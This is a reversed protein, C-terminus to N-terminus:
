GVGWGVVWFAFRVTFSGIIALAILEIANRGTFAVTALNEGTLLGVILTMLNAGLLGVFWSKFPGRAVRGPILTSLFGGFWLGPIVLVWGLEAPLEVDLLGFQLALLTGIALLVVAGGVRLLVREQTKGRAVFAAAAAEEAKGSSDWETGRFKEMYSHRAAATAIPAAIASAKALAAAIEDLARLTAPAATPDHRYRVSLVQQGLAISWEESFPVDGAQARSRADAHYTREAEERTAGRYLTSEQSAETAEGLGPPVWQANM